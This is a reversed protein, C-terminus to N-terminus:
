LGLVLELRETVKCRGRLRLTDPQSPTRAQRGNCSSRYCPLYNAYPLTPFAPTIFGHALAQGQARGLSRVDLGSVTQSQM